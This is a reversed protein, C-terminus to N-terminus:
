VMLSWLESSVVNTPRGILDTLGIKKKNATKQQERHYMPEHFPGKLDKLTGWWKATSFLMKGAWGYFESARNM